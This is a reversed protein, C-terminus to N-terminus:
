GCIGDLIATGLSLWDIDILMNLLTTGVDAIGDFIEPLSEFVGKVMNIIMEAGSTLVDKLSSILSTLAPKVDMGSTLAIAFNTLSSKMSDMSHNFTNSMTNYGETVVDAETAMAALDENFTEIDGAIMMAANGAEISSFLDVMSVGTKDAYAQLMGMVEGLDAGSSMMETFSMGAYKTGKAAKELAEAGKTGQKSLEAFASKLQTTAQATPTGKATMLALAAGVNEFSVGTAAAIPTVQALSAGLEGVTTIGKNQTQLLVKQVKNMAEEGTVGYANMTKVTASLATDVDTFGATALKTSAELTAALDEMPVSASEASYAAEALSEATLGSASSLELIKAKLNDFDEGTGTFLTNVKAMATEFDAGSTIADTIMKGLGLTVIVKKFKSGLSKALTEGSSHGASEAEGSLASTLSGTIGEASPVIQVYAKALETAM